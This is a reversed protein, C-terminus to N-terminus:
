KREGKRLMLWFGTFIMISGAIITIARLVGWRNAKVGQDIPGAFPDAGSETIYYVTDRAMDIVQTGVPLVVNFLDESVNNIRIEKTEYYMRATVQNWIKSDESVISAYKDVVQKHPLWIEPAVEKWDQNHIAYKKPKGPEWHYIRKRIAYGHETDVWFKDMDPYEVVWCPFGDVEERTPHVRYKSKNKELFEPLFPHDLYDELSPIKQVTDYKESGSEVVHRSINWGVHRFFDFCQHTNRGETLSEVSAMEGYQRWELLLNNKLISIQPDLPVWIEGLMNLGDANKQGIQTFAKSTFWRNGSKAVIFEVDIFGGSYRSPTIDESKIRESNVLFSDLQFFRSEAAKIGNFIDNVTPVTASQGQALDAFAGFLIVLSSLISSLVSTKMDTSIPNSVFKRTRCPSCLMFGQAESVGSFPPNGLFHTFFASFPQFNEYFGLKAARTSSCNRAGDHVCLGPVTKEPSGSDTEPEFLTAIPEEV